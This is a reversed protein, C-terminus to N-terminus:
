DAEGLLYNLAWRLRRFSAPDGGSDPHHQKSLRRFAEKIRGPDITATTEATSGNEPLLDLFLLASFRQWNCKPARPYRSSLARGFEEAATLWEEIGWQDFKDAAKKTKPYLTKEWVPTKGARNLRKEYRGLNRLLRLFEPPLSLVRRRIYEARQAALSRRHNLYDQKLDLFLPFFRSRPLHYTTYLNEINQSALRGTDLLRYATRHLVVGKLRPSDSLLRRLEAFRSSKQMTKPQDDLLRSLPYGPHRQSRRM